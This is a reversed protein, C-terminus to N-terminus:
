VTKNLAARTVSEVYRAGGGQWCCGSCREPAAEQDYRCETSMRHPIFAQVNEWTGDERYKRDPAYYGPSFPERNHCGYLDGAVTLAHVPTDAVPM